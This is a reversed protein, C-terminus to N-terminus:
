WTKTLQVTFTRQLDSLGESHLRISGNGRANVSMPSLKDFINVVTFQIGINRLWENAPMEGTQYGISIDFHVDAPLMNDYPDQPGYYPSGPYCSGAAFEPAYFCRPILAAGNLNNGPSDGYNGHGWYNAFLTVNWTPNAWGLRYRVRQLRNGSDQDQFRDDLAGDEFPRTKDIMQYYGQAGVNISGWEGLDYDYRVVFDIGSFVRSGLNTLAADRIYKINQIAPTETQCVPDATECNVLANPDFAFGGASPYAALEKVLDYFAANEPATIALDPRPIVTYYKRYRPDDATTQDLGSGEIMGRFELRFWSVDAYFGNLFGQTPAFNFGMSWQQLTMPNLGYGRLIAAHGGGSLEASVGGPQALHEAQSCTPNLAETLSGIIAGSANQGYQDIVDQPIGANKCRLGDIDTSNQFAGLPNFGALRTRDGGENFSPVRFSEGWAGRLTLGYGVTWNAAIKRVWVPNDLDSYHDYRYGLEILFREVFPIDMEPGVVPINLQGFFAYSTRRDEQFLRTWVDTSFTNDNQLNQNWWDVSLHQFAIAGELPGGPLQFIPGNFNAAIENVKYQTDQYRIGTIYKLTAPDNCTFATPDCFVNLYPISGPKTFSGYKGAPDTITRGLAASVMPRSITNDAHGYNHDDTYSYTVKGRWDFPLEDFNIGGAIRAAREGGTIYVPVEAAFSYDVRLGNPAGYPYYNLIPNTVPNEPLNPDQLVRPVQLNGHLIQRGQGNGAPYKQKGRQDSWFGEAFFSVPGLFGFLDPTMRQDLTFHMQNWRASPRGDAYHWPNVLNQLIPDGGTNAVIDAWTLGVGDQGRPISYCLPWSASTSGCYEAGNSSSFGVPTPIDPDTPFDPDGPWNRTAANGVHVTGPISSTRPTYDMLGISRFDQTYYFREETPVNNSTTFTYSATVNGTEWTHGYLQAVQSQLYGVQPSSTFGVQTMAGNFGRRLIINIVGATADSGYVASAGATLIDLREIAIQPIISPNTTDGSYNQPPWRLGDILLLTEVGNGTGLSHIQVNQLFSLTGGGYTPSSQADIDLAPVSQLIDTVSLKGTEVFDLTRLSNVPVGVSVTGQILSGTILVTEPIEEAQAVMEGGWAASGAAMAVISATGFLTALRISNRASARSALFGM